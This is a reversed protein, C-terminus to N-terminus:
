NPWSDGCVDFHFLVLDCDPVTCCSLFSHRKESGPQSALCTVLPRRCPDATDLKKAEQQFPQYLPLTEALHSWEFCPSLEPWICLRSWNRTVHTLVSLVQNKKKQCLKITLLLLEIVLPVTQTNQSAPKSSTIGQETNMNRGIICSKLWICAWNHM